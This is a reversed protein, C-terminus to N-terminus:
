ERRLENAQRWDNEANLARQTLDRRLASNDTKAAQRLFEAAKESEVVFTRWWVVITFM